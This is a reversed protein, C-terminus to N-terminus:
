YITFSSWWFGFIGLMGADTICASKSNDDRADLPCFDCWMSVGDNDIDDDPDIGTAGPPLPSHFQFIKSVFLGFWSM